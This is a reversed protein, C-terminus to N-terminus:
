LLSYFFGLKSTKLVFDKIKKNRNATKLLERAEALAAETTEKGVFESFYGFNKESNIVDYFEQISSEPTINGRQLRSQVEELIIEDALKVDGANKNLTRKLERTGKITDLMRGVDEGEIGLRESALKVKPSEAIKRAVFDPSKKANLIIDKVERAQDKTIIGEMEQLTSDLKTLDAKKPNKLFPELKHEVHHSVLTEYLAKQEPTHSLQEKLEKMGSYSKTKRVVNEPTLKTYNSALKIEQTKAQAPQAKHRNFVDRIQNAESPSIVPKLDKLVIDLKELNANAPDRLFPQLKEEVIQRQLQGVVKEGEPTKNFVDKVQNFKDIDTLFDATATFDENTVDRLKRATDNNFNRSWFGYGEKSEKTAQIAAKNGSREAARLAAEELDEILPKLINYMDGHRFEYDVLKKLSKAQEMLDLNNVKLYTTSPKLKIGSVPDVSPGIKVLKNKIQNLADKMAVQAPNLYGINSLARQTNIVRNLVDPHTYNINANTVKQKQYLVDVAERIVNDIDRFTETANQGLETANEFPREKTFINGIEEGVKVPSVPPEAVVEVPQSEILAKNEANQKAKLENATREAALTKAEPEQKTFIQRIDEKVNQPTAPREVNIGLNGALRETKRKGLTTPETTRPEFLRVYREKPQSQLLLDNEAQEIAKMREAAAEQKVLPNVPPPGGGGGPPPGGGGGPPILPNAPSQANPKGLRQQVAGAGAGAVGSYLLGVIDSVGEPVGVAQLGASVAPAEVAAALRSSWDKPAFAQAMSGLRLLKDWWQKPELPIGYHHEISKEFNHQTPFYEAQLATNKMWQERDLKEPWDYMPFREKLRALDTEVEDFGALSSGITLMQAVDLPWSVKQLIGLPIQLASRSFQMLGNEEEQIIDDKKTGSVEIKNPIGVSWNLKDKPEQNESQPIGVQDPVAQQFEEPANDYQDWEIGSVESVPQEQLEPPADEYEDWNITTM